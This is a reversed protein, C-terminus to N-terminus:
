SHRRWTKLGSGLQFFRNVPEEERQLAHLVLHGHDGRQEPAPEGCLIDGGGRGIRHLLYQLPEDHRRLQAVRDDAVNRSVQPEAQEVLRLDTCGALPDIVVHAVAQLVKGVMGVGRVVRGPHIGEDGGGLQQHVQQCM